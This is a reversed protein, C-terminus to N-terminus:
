IGQPQEIVVAPAAAVSLDPTAGRRLAQMFAMLNFPTYSQPMLATVLGWEPLAVAVLQEVGADNRTTHLLYYSGPYGPQPLRERYLRTDEDIQEHLLLSQRLTIMDVAEWLESRRRYPNAIISATAQSMSQREQAAWQTGLVFHFFGAALLTLPWAMWTNSWLQLHMMLATLVCIFIWLTWLRARARGSGLAQMALQQEEPLRGKLRPLPYAMPITYNESEPTFKRFLRQFTKLNRQHVKGPDRLRTAEIFRSQVRVETMHASLPSCFITVVQPPQGEYLGDPAIAVVVQHDYDIEFPTWGAEAVCALTVRLATKPKGDFQTTLIRLPRQILWLEWIAFGVLAGAIPLGLVILTYDLQAGVLKDLGDRWWGLGILVVVFGYVTGFTSWWRRALNRQEQTLFEDSYIYETLREPKVSRLQHSSDGTRYTSM